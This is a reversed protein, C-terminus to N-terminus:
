LNKETTHLDFIGVCKKVLVIIFTTLIITLVRRRLQLVREDLLRQPRAAGHRQAAHGGGRRRRAEGPQQVSLREVAVERGVPGLRAETWEGDVRRGSACWVYVRRQTQTPIRYAFLRRELALHHRDQVHRRRRRRVAAAVGAARRVREAGDLM